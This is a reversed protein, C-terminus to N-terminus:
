SELSTSLPAAKSSYNSAGEDEDESLDAERRRKRSVTPKDETDSAEEDSASPSLARKLSKKSASWMRNLRGQQGFLLLFNDVFERSKEEWKNLVQHSREEIDEVVKQTRKRITGIKEQFQIRKEKMFGVNLDKRTYGRKLNRRVYIDYDRVIRAVVDSTSVGETRQTAVFRGAQKVWHYIDDHDDAGYPLDDHAVFDIKNEALFEPTLVWPANRYVEDVYRCHRVSEYREWENMVTKGKLKHTLADNCVGVILYVSPFATKAQMLQRAHGAHFLDYIGDAYVRIPRDCEGAKAKELSVQVDYNVRDREQQALEGDSYLAAFTLALPPQENMPPEKVLPDTDAYSRAPVPSTEKSTSPTYTFRPSDESGSSTQSATDDDLEGAMNDVLVQPSHSRKRSLRPKPASRRSSRSGTPSVSKTPRQRLSYSPSSKAADGM